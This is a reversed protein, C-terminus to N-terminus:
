FMKQITDLEDRDSVISMFGEQCIVEPMSVLMERLHEQKHVVPCRLCPHSIDVEGREIPERHFLKRATRYLTNNRLQHLPGDALHGFDDKKHYLFCCPAIGGDSQLTVNHYLLGCREQGGYFAGKLEKESPQLRAPAIPGKVTFWDVRLETALELAQDLESELHRLGLTQWEIIPKKQKRKTKYEVIRRINQLVLELNGGRRYQQYTKQTAGDVSVILHDLGSECIEEVRDPDNLSLHSSISTFIRREHVMRVIEGVHPHLLTEGWNYLHAVLLYDATQDLVKQLDDSKLMSKKRGVLGLGTPCGPCRLNCANTVDITATFPMARTELALTKEEFFCQALNALKKPTWYDRLAILHKRSISGTRRANLNCKPKMGVAKQQQYANTAIGCNCEM